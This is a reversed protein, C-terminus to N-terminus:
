QLMPYRWVLFAAWVQFGLSCVTSLVSCIPRTEMMNWGIINTSQIIQKICYRICISFLPFITQDFRDCKCIIMKIFYIKLLKWQAYQSKIAGSESWWPETHPIPFEFVEMSCCVSDRSEASLIVQDCDKMWPSCIM